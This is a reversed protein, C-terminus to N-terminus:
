FNGRIYTKGAAKPKRKDGVGMLALLTVLYPLTLLFQAPINFETQARMQFADLLGLLMTTLFIGFPNYGAFIVASYALFGKSGTMSRAFYGMQGIALEGGALGGLVGAIIVALFQHKVVSIGVSDAAAPHEGIARM